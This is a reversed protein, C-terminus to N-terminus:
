GHAQMGLLDVSIGRYVWLHSWQIRLGDSDDIRIGEHHKYEERTRIPPSSVRGLERATPKSKNLKQTM